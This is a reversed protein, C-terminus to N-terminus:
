RKRAGGAANDIMNLLDKYAEQFADDNVKDMAFPGLQEILEIRSLILPLDEITVNRPDPFGEENLDEILDQREGAPLSPDNIAGLWYEEAAPDAGVFVLAARALPDQLPKKPSNSKASKGAKKAKQVEPATTKISLDSDNTASTVLPESNRAHDTQAKAPAAPGNSNQSSISKLNAEPEHQAVRRTPNRSAQNWALVVVTCVVFFIILPVQTSRRM